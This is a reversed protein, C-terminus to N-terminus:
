VPWKALGCPCISFSPRKLHNPSSKRSHIPQLFPNQMWEPRLQWLLRATELKAGFFCLLFLITFGWSPAINSNWRTVASSHNSFNLDMSAQQQVFSTNLSRSIIGPSIWKVKIAPKECPVFVCCTMFQPQNPEFCVPNLHIHPIPRILLPSCTYTDFLSSISM